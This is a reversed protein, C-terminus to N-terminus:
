WNSGTDIWEIITRKELDSLAPVSSDQPMKKVAGQQADGDWPRATNRGLIHWVLPSTRARGPHVYRGWSNPSDNRIMLRRYINEAVQREDDAEAPGSMAATFQPESGEPGHCALCKEKIIPIIDRLFHVKRQPSEPSPLRVAEGGMADVFANEPTLEGDEHCGICGRPEHNKAWIWGCSRLALGDGDLTQLEIPLSAPLDLQFSGDEGLEIEGLIRRPVLPSVRMSGEDSSARPIGEMIRLRKISGPPLWNRDPFDSVYVSLCYFKSRPDEETVVSSRGDPEERPRILQAQIDHYRPDDFVLDLATSTPDFRFVGHTVQGVPKRRSVLL